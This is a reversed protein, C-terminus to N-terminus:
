WRGLSIKYINGNGASFTVVRKGDFALKAFEVEKTLTQNLIKRGMKSIVCLREKGSVVIKGKSYDVSQATFDLKVEKTKRLKQSLVLVKNGEGKEDNDSVALTLNDADEFDFADVTKGSLAFERKIKGRKDVSLVANDNLVILSSGAYCLKYTLSNKLAVQGTFDEKDIDFLTIVSTVEKGSTDLGSVAMHKNDDSLVADTINWAGSYWKYINEGNKDYVNVLAKYGTESTIIVSYGNKNVYAYMVPNEAEIIYMVQGDKMVFAEAGDIDSAIIYDGNTNVFPTLLNATLNWEENGKKDYLVVSDSKVQLLKDRYIAYDTKSSTASHISVTKDSLHNGFIVSVLSPLWSIVLVILLIIGLKILDSKTIKLKLKKNKIKNLFENFIKKM